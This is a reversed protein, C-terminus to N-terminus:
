QSPSSGPPPSIIVPATEPQVLIVPEPKAPRPPPVPRPESRVTEVPKPKEQAQSLRSLRRYTRLERLRQKTESKNIDANAAREAEIQRRLREAEIVRMEAHIKLERKRLLLEDRQAYYAELKAQDEIRQKEEQEALRKQEQQLRELEDIGQQMITVGLKTALEANDENRTLASPRGAYSLNMAPLDPRAKLAVTIDTDIEGLALEAVTKVMVDADATKRELPLFGVEGNSITITGDVKGLEFGEGSRLADFAKTIGAADKAAGLAANFDKPSINLLRVDDFGYSGSGGLSALAGGPSRGEGEFGVEIRGVGSAVSPGGAVRLQAALDVPIVVKGKLKRSSDMGQSAVEIQADRGGEDKGFMALRIEGASAAIGIEADRATFQETIKLKDPKIWLEGTLGFPLSASFSAELDPKAGSWAVFVPALVDALSLPGTEFRGDVKGASDVTVNGSIPAEGLRGTVDSLSWGADKGAIAADIVLVEHPLASIPIGTAEFLVGADTSRLSVKGELGLGPRWPDLSGRYDARAGYAQISADAMYGDAPTGAAKIVLRGPDGGQVAPEIGLLTVLRGSTKSSVAIEGSVDRMDSIAGTASLTLEGATGVLSFDVAPGREGPKVSVDGKLAAPGLDRSWLPNGGGHILGLLQLLERPDQAEATLGISGDAGKGVDLILGTAQLRAGGVSGIDLTRLDLGNAGSQLDVAVDKATVGNLLLEAAQVTLRLDPADAYPLVLMALSGVGKSAAASVTSFGQPAYSDIDIRKADIRLDVAQRGASAVSLEATGLEGDLEYQTKSFRVAADNIGLATQMKFRGRSGTWAAAIAPKADPWVWTVLQRLDNAEVALDGSLEGGQEGPFYVGKFLAQSNGPLGASFESIRLADRDADFALVANGLTEGGTRLATVAMRGSLSMDAPLSSLLSKAVALSGAERLMDRSRAGALEDLDLMTAKLDVSADAHRGLKLSASGTVLAGGEKPDTPGIEISQLAIRDFDATVKSTLALPRLKGEADGKGSETVAPEVRISGEASKGDHAGDFSFIIGSGDTQAVRVGFRFPADPTWVATTLGIDVGKDNYLSQSRLRWPGTIAPSSLTANFDDLRFTEGRRRDAFEVTGDRLTISDLKVRSLIDSKVLDKAPKFNWNGEGTALREFRLVPSDIEVSDVDIGGQLLGALTMRVVLRDAHAFDQQDLGAPNAIRVNYATLKPWPFLQASIPGEIAVARGTLKKGYAELDARYSNWNVIYPAALLGAVAIILLIGFYFVPSKWVKM